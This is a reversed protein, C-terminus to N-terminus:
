DVGDEPLGAALAEVMQEELFGLYSYLALQPFRPDDDEVPEEYLDETVDLRTGLVLRLDNVAGLWAALQEETLREAELTDEMLRLAELRQDSLDDRTLREYEAQQAADDEYAPPFLRALSPDSPHESILERLQAPLRRLLDREAKPLRVRYEGKRTREVRPRDRSAV